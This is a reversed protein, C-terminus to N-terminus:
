RGITATSRIWAPDDGTLLSHCRGAFLVILFNTVDVGPLTFVSLGTLCLGWIITLSVAAADEGRPKKGTARIAPWVVIMFYCGLTPVGGIFLMWLYGNDFFQYDGMSPWYWTGTPGRGLILDTVPVVAFFDTYQGSRTDETMRANLGDVSADVTQPIISYIMFAAVIGVLCIVILIPVARIISGNERARLLVFLIVLLCSDITLSRSQSCLAIPILCVVPVLRPLLRWGKLRTASLLTWGGFWLLLITYETYRSAGLYTTFKLTVLTRTGLVASAYALVRATPEIYTWLRRDSGSVVLLVSIWVFPGTAGFIKSSLIEGSTYSVDAWIITESLLVYFAVRTGLDLLCWRGDLASLLGAATVCCISLGHTGYYLPGKVVEMVLKGDPGPTAISQEIPSVAAIWASVLGVVVLAAILETSKRCGRAVARPSFYAPTSRHVGIVAQSM